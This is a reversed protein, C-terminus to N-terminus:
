ATTAPPAPRAMLLLIAVLGFVSAVAFAAGPFHFPAAPSTFFSLPENLVLPGLISALATVSGLFGQVEGQQTESVGRSMMATLSPHALGQLATVTLIVFVMWGQSAFILALFGATATAMGLAGARREGLRTVIRGVALTQVLGMCLGTWALSLGIMGSSWGYRAIAHFSWTCPYVLTALEWFFFVLALTLVGPAHRLTLLAGLPNARRWEFPRRKDESLSEPLVFLGYLFNAGALASAAFFPARPSLEGLLGGLAPGVIFGVGFAAGVLGFVHARDEPQSLDALAANAPGYVAGFLGAVLRGIFLWALSPAFGMLLYDIGFGALSALLVPRRGFRDGLNGMVPGFLFQALAYLLALWGGVRTAQAIDGQGLRMVLQPFVPMVIGFGVTDIFLTAMLFFIAPSRRPAVAM